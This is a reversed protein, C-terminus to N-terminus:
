LVQTVMKFKICTLNLMEYMLNMYMFGNCLHIFKYIMQFWLNWVLNQILRFFFSIWIAVFNQWWIQYCYLNRCYIQMQYKTNLCGLLTMQVQLLEIFVYTASLILSRIDFWRYSWAIQIDCRLLFVQEYNAHHAFTCNPWRHFRYSILLFNLVIILM